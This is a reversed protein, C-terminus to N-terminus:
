RLPRYERPLCLYILSGLPGLLVILLIGILRNTDSIRQNTACHILSWLWLGSITLGMLIMVPFILMVGSGSGSSTSALLPHLLQLSNM